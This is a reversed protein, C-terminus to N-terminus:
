IGQLSNLLDHFLFFVNITRFVLKKKFRLESRQGVNIAEGEVTVM